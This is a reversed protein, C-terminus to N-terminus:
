HKQKTQNTSLKLGGTLPNFLFVDGDLTSSTLKFLHSVNLSFLSIPLLCRSPPNIDVLCRSPPNIDVLCRSPPNIDV